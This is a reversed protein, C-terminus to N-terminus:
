LGRGKKRWAACMGILTAVWAALAIILAAASIANLFTFHTAQALEFTCGSYMGLPFVRGWDGPQYHYPVGHVVCRWYELLLLLPIWWSAVIWFLLALGIIFPTLGALGPWFSGARLLDAAALTTIAAAGMGIWYVPSFEEPSLPYFLLRALILIIIVMYLFSGLATMAASFLLAEGPLARVGALLAGLTAVSQTSVVLLLWGGHIASWGAKNRETIQAILFAYGTVLWLGGGLGWLVRSLVTGGAIVLVQSGVLCTAAVLTSFSPGRLPTRFDSIVRGPYVALRALTLLWLLSYIVLNMWYLVRAAVRFGTLDLSLSIIGTAMVLAFYAPDLDALVSRSQISVPQLARRGGRM